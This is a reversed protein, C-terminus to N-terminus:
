VIKKGIYGIICKRTTTEPVFHLRFGKIGINCHYSFLRTENDPCRIILEDNFEKIRTDSELRVDGGVSDKDFDGTLWNAFYNDFENFRFLLIKFPSGSSKLLYEETSDCFQLNPFLESKQAWLDKGNHIETLLKNKASLLKNEIYKNHTESYNLNYCNRIKLEDTEIEDTIENIQEQVIPLYNVKWNDYTEFSILLNDNEYAYGIGKGEEDYAKYYPYGHILTGNTLMSLVSSKKDKEQSSLWKHFSFDNNFNNDVISHSYKLVTKEKYDIEFKFCIDFFLDYWVKAQVESETESYSLENIVLVM